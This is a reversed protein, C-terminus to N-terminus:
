RVPIHTTNPAIGRQVDIKSSECKEALREWCSSKDWMKVTMTSGQFPVVAGMTKHFVMVFELLPQELTVEEVSDVLPTVVM